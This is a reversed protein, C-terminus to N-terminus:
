KTGEKRASNLEDLERQVEWEKVEVMDTAPEWLLHDREICFHTQNGSNKQRKYEDLDHPDIDRWPVTVFMVGRDPDGFANSSYWRGREHDIVAPVKPVLGVADLAEVLVPLQPMAAVRKSLAKGDQTNKRPMYLGFQDPSKWLRQDPTKDFVFGAVRGDVYTKLGQAGLEKAMATVGEIAARREKMIAVAADMLPGSTIRFYRKYVNM